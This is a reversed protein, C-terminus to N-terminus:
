GQGHMSHKSLMAGYDLAPIHIHFEIHMAYQVLAYDSVTCCNDYRKQIGLSYPMVRLWSAASVPQLAFAIGVTNPKMGGDGWAGRKGGGWERVGTGPRSVGARLRLCFTCPRGTCAFGTRLTCCVASCIHLVVQCGAETAISIHGWVIPLGILLHAAQGHVLM